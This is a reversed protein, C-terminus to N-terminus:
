AEVEQWGTSATNTLTVPNCLTTLERVTVNDFRSYSAASANASRLSIQADSATAMFVFTVTGASTVSASNLVAFSGAAQRLAVVSATASPGVEAVTASVVYYKGATLEPLSQNAGGTVGAAVDVRLTGSSWATTSNVAFWGAIDTNFAGNALLEAADAVWLPRFSINKIVCTVPGSQRKFIVTQGNSIGAFDKQTYFYRKVGVTNFGNTVAATAQTCMLTGTISEVEFELFGATPQSTASIFILESLSGDGVLQWRGGGLYTWQSGKVFPNELVNQTILEPGLGSPNPLQITQERDQVPYLVGNIRLNSIPGQYFSGWTTASTNCAGIVTLATPERATGRTFTTSLVVADNKYFVLAEGVLTVRYRTNPELPQGMNGSFVGGITLQLMNANNTFLGFERNTSVTTVNQAVITWSTGAIPVTPGTKFEIDIDGDPNIARFALQGRDDVGDFSYAWRLLPLPVGDVQTWGTSATNALTLPNCLSDLPRLSVNDVTCTTTGAHGAQINVTNTFSGGQVNFVVVETYTGAATRDPSIYHVGNGYVLVRVAGSSISSVTYQLVYRKTNETSAARRTVSSATANTVQLAGGSIASNPGVTWGTSSSFDGNTVLEIAGAVWLPKFSINKIVATVPVGSNNRSFTMRNDLNKQIFYWRKVGPTNFQSNAALGATGESCRISGGSISEIEFEVFGAEPQGGPSIFTLGSYTGDSVLQWRGGGLYTWQTGKVAPNELVSQTILEQGLGTPYPLQITQDRDQIPYLRGNIRVDFLHGQYFGGFSGALSWAAIKTVATPERNTGRTITAQQTQVGNRFYRLTNGVLQMRYTTNPAITVATNSALFNGGLVPQLSGGTNIQLYFEKLSFNNSVSQDVICLATGFTPVTPGTKFEIDIDGDPDIARFQLQGRDDVGDFNYAWRKLAGILSTHLPKFLQRFLPKVLM